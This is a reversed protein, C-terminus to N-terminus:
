RTDDSTPVLKVEGAEAETDPSPEEPEPPAPPGTRDKRKGLHTAAPRRPLKAQLQAWNPNLVTPGLPKPKPKRKRKPNRDTSPNAATAPPASSPPPAAM